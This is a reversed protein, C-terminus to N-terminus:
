FDYEAGLAIVLYDADYTGGSTVVRRALPDIATVIEQRFAVGPKVIDRYYARVEELTKWGFLLDFKAFGFVFAEAQDILTVSVDSGAEESLRSTLELGGFGAGLVVIDTTM